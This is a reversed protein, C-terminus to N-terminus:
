RMCLARKGAGRALLLEVVAKHHNEYALDLATSGCSAQAQIDAGRDLLLRVVAEQGADAAWHLATMGRSKTELTTWGRRLLLDFIETCGCIAARHAFPISNEDVTNPNAGLEVLTEVATAHDRDIACHIPLREAGPEGDPNMGHRVLTRIVASMGSEVACNLADGYWNKLYPDAGLRLLDKVISVHGNSASMILPTSGMTTAQNLSFKGSALLESFARKLGCRCAFYLPTISLAEDYNWYVKRYGTAYRLVQYASAMAPSNFFVFLTRWVEPDSESARTHHGWHRVAYSLFPHNDLLREISTHNKHPGRAFERFLLYSLCTVALHSEPFIYSRTRDFYEQATYHVLRITNSDKDVTVLGACVAVMDEIQPLNDPDLEPEGPEVALAHQLEEVSIPRKARVIWSIVQKALDRQDAVQAEIREIASGFAYDYAESSLPLKELAVRIAKPTIKGVLSDLHLQALL